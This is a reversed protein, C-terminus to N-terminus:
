LRSSECVNKCQAVAAREEEARHRLVGCAIRALLCYAAEVRAMNSTGSCERLIDHRLARATAIYSLFLGHIEASPRGQHVALGLALAAGSTGHDCRAVFHFILDSVLVIAERPPFRAGRVLSTTM